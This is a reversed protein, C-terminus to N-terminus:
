ALPMRNWKLTYPGVLETLADLVEEIHAPPTSAGATIGIHLADLFWTKDLEGASEIHYSRPAVQSCLEFLRRTNGSNKGGIVLMCDSRKALECASTQREHTATCITNMVRLEHVQCVLAACIAEVHEKTQTTQVVVGVKKQLTLKEIDAPSSIVYASKGAHGLIGEVEPHGIEGIVLVQYGEHVLQAAARQVTHVYPCTADVVSLGTAHADRIIDPSVGHARIVLTGQRADAITKAVGVGQAVLESVVRPNHILPGLSTINDATKAAESTMRLAREVGYCVGAHEAIEVCISAGM